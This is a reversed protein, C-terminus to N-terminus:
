DLKPMLLMKIVNKALFVVVIVIVVLTGRGPKIRNSLAVYKVMIEDPFPLARCQEYRLPTM